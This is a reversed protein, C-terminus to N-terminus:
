ALHSLVRFWRPTNENLNRSHELVWFFEVVSLPDNLHAAYLFIRQGVNDVNTPKNAKMMSRAHGVGMGLDPTHYAGTRLLSAIGLEFRDAGREKPSMLSGKACLTEELLRVNAREIM